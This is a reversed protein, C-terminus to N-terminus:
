APNPPAYKHAFTPLGTFKPDYEGNAYNDAAPNLSNLAAYPDARKNDMCNKNCFYTPGDYLYALFDVTSKVGYGNEGTYQSAVVVFNYLGNPLRGECGASTEATCPNGTSDVWTNWEVMGPISSTFSHQTVGPPLQPVRDEQCSGDLTFKKTSQSCYFTGSQTGISVPELDSPLAGYPILNFQLKGTTNDYITSNYQNVMVLNETWPFADSKSRVVGGMENPTGFRFELPNGIPDYAAVHFKSREGYPMHPVPIIPPMLIVPSAAAKSYADGQIWVETELRLCVLTSLRPMLSSRLLM